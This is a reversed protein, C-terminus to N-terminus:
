NGSAAPTAVTFSGSPTTIPITVPYSSNGDLYVILPQAQGTPENPNLLFSVQYVGPSAQSVTLASHMLGGVGAQVRSTAIAAGDPAFGTLSVTLLDGQVAPFAPGIPNDSTNVVSTIVAPQTAIGVTLPYANTVGNFLQMLAPGAPIDSPIQLNIQTPSSYLIAAAEGNFTVSPAANAAALNSGYLGVVAGAYSGTLGPLANTLTPIPEPLGAVAATIHFGAKATAMQFGSFVSVDPNSLAAAAAVSVDAQLHNPGLVFVQNVVVDSTGFGVATEGAAFNFGSGVIDVMAEAGAPLSSPSISSITQTAAKVYTYTAPNATQLFQSNQGDPNYVILIATQGSMGPPPTVVATGAKKADVGLSSVQAPLGDFYIASGATWNTGTITLTGDGNATVSQISPPDEETLRVAGPLVHIFGPTTVILHQPGTSSFPTFAVDLAIYTNGGSQYPQVGNSAVIASGGVFAATLGPAQGNSGLGTGSAAVVSEGAGINLFAPKIAVTDNDYYGYVAVDYVPLTALSTVAINVGGVTAGTGVYVPTAQEVNMTGPYFLANTPGSAAAVSGDANWPGAINADPPLAHAYVFYQGAPVGDIEYTGDPNTLASVASAGARIAVVSELHVGKGGSTIQGTITGTQAFSANPYLTSIGAIDDVDIPDAQSTASTTAQSMAASTFTHQLGLAHGMEHVLVLLFSEDYSPFPATLGNVNLHIASRTIPVFPAASAAAASTKAMGKRAGQSHPAVPGATGLDPPATGNAPSIATSLITPGGLGLVGPALDEFVVDAAPTNQQTTANEFGGFGVRLASSSVGNWIQAAQRIQGVVSAFNDDTSFSTPGAESVFFWVTNNPLATLDFKAPANGSSLYYVFHYYASAPISCLAAAAALAFTFYWRKM